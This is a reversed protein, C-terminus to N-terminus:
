SQRNNIDLWTNMDIQKILYDILQRGSYSDDKCEDIRINNELDHIIRKLKKIKKKIGM